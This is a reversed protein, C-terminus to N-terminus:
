LIKKIEKAIMKGSDVEVNSNLVKMKSINGVSENNLYYILKKEKLNKLFRQHKKSLLRSPAFVFVPKKTYIAESIMSITEGTIIIYDAFELYAFFPNKTDKKSDYIHNKFSNIYKLIINNASKPTRRSNTYFVSANLNSAAKRTLEGLKDAMKDTFKNDKTSGGVILTIIPRKFSSLEKEWNSKETKLKNETVKVPNISYKIINKRKLFNDHSPLFILDFKNILSIGPSMLNVIKIDKGEKKAKNKLICAIVAERRGASIILDPYPKQLAKKADETLDSLNLFQRIFNPLFVLNNYTVFKEQLGADLSNAVGQIQSNGGKKESLLLWVKKNKM